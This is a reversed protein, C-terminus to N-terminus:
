FFVLKTKEMVARNGTGRLLLSSSQTPSKWTKDCDSTGVNEANPWPHYCPNEGEGLNLETERVLNLKVAKERKGM